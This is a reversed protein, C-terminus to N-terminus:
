VMIVPLIENKIRAMGFLFEPKQEVLVTMLDFVKKKMSINKM